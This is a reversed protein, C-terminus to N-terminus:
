KIKVIGLDDDVSIKDVDEIEGDRVKAITFGLPIPNYGAREAYGADKGYLKVWSGTNVYYRFDGPIFKQDGYWGRDSTWGQRIRSGESHVYLFEDPQYVELQHTHGMAMLICDSSKQELINRIAIERNAKARKHPKVVSKVSGSGHHLFFKFLTREKGIPAGQISASKKRNKFTIIAAYTGFPIGVRNCIEETSNGFARMNRRNAHNGDLMLSIKTEHPTLMDAYDSIQRLLCDRKDRVVEPSYRPDDLFVADLPDGMHFLTNTKVGSYEKWLMDLMIKFGEDYRLETGLHDDGGLFANFDMPVYYTFHKM